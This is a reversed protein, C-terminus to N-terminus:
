ISLRTTLGDLLAQFDETSVEADTATEPLVPLKFGHRELRKYLLVFGNPTWYLAKLATRRRNHFVFLEGCMPDRGLSRGVVMALGDIQKRFDVPERALRVTVEPRLKV